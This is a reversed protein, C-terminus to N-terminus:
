ALQDLFAFFAVVAVYVPLWLRWAATPHGEAPLPMGVARALLGGLLGAAPAGAWGALEWVLPHQAAAEAAPWLADVAFRSVTIVGGMTGVALGHLLEHGQAHRAAAFGGLAMTGFVVCLALTEFAPASVGVALALLVAAGIFALKDVMVGLLVSGPRLECM